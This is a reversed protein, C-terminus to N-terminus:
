EGIKALEKAADAASLPLYGQPSDAVAQQGERSLALRLFERAVPNLPQRVHILLHRDLPYQNATISEATPLVPAQGPGAALALTRVGPTARMAAAFGIALPDAALKAVVEASQAFGVMHATYAAGQLAQQQFDLALVRDRALGHVHIPRQAWDGQAGVDGWVMCAGSFVCVVAAMSLSQLPNDGHVFVALPGSLARPDMSAHAVRIALPAGEGTKARYDALQDPTFEAGMPAFASKGAALAAPAFRTGPLDLRIRLGPHSANFLEAMKGLMAAMDNYGVVSVTGDAGAYGAQAPLTVARPQYHPLGPDVEAPYASACAQALVMALVLAPRNKM